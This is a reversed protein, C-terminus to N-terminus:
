NHLTRNTMPRTSDPVDGRVDLEPYPSFCHFHLELSNWAQFGQRSSPALGRTTPQPKIQNSERVSANPKPKKTKSVAPYPPFTYSLVHRATNMELFCDHEMGRSTFVHPSFKRSSPLGAEYADFRSAVVIKWESFLRHSSSFPLQLLTIHRNMITIQLINAAM